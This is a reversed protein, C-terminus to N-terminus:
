YAEKSAHSETPVMILVCWFNDKHQVSLRPLTMHIKITIRFCVQRRSPCCEFHQRIFSGLYFHSKHGFVTAENRHIWKAM